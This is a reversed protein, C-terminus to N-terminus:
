FITVPTAASATYAAVSALPQMFIQFIITYHLMKQTPAMLDADEPYKFDANNFNSDCTSTGLAFSSKYFSGVKEM